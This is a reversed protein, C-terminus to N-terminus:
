VISSYLLQDGDRVSFSTLRLAPKRRQYDGGGGVSLVREQVSGANSSNKEAHMARGQLQSLLVGLYFCFDTGSRPLVVDRVM